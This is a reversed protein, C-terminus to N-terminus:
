EKIIPITTLNNLYEWYAERIKKIENEIAKIEKKKKEINYLGSDRICKVFLHYETTYFGDNGNKIINTDSEQLDFIYGKFDSYSSGRKNIVICDKKDITDLQISKITITEFSPKEKSRYDTHAYYIKDGLKLDKFTKM